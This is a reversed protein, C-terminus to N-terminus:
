ESLSSSSLSISAHGIEDSEVSSSEEDVEAEVACDDIYNLSRRIKVKELSEHSSGKPSVHVNVYSPITFCDPSHFKSVEEWLRWRPSEEANRDAM